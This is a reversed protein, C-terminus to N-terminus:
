RVARVIDIMTQNHSCNFGGGSLGNFTVPMTLSNTPRKLFQQRPPLIELNSNVSIGEAEVEKVGLLARCGLHSLLLRGLVEFGPFTKSRARHLHWLRRADLEFSARQNIVPRWTWNPGTSPCAPQMAFYRSSTAAQRCTICHEVSYNFPRFNSSLKNLNRM